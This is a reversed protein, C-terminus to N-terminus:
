ASRHEHIAMPTPPQVLTLRGRQRQLLWADFRAAPMAKALVFGQVGDCGLAALQDWTEQDEVGEAIVAHGMHRALDITSRVIAADDQDRSMQMVFSRDIKVVQIPLRKLRGLSSYGTGFDDIALQVGLGSLAEIIRRSRDQDAMVSSETVELTLWRPDVDAAELLSNIRGVVDNDFLSRGSINVAMKLLLGRDHWSRLQGIATELTWWTLPIILGSQEAAPIFEDPSVEGHVPHHWRLLAECGVIEGTALSAQPQYWVQLDERSMAQRLDTTLLLRRTSHHDIGPDYIELGGGRAKAEYMAVDARRLLLSSDEGHQPALSAGLSARLALELDGVTLPLTLAELIELGVQGLDAADLPETIVFAFEDGGLRAVLGRDGVTEKLRKAVEVLIDDGAHHGLTDNVDKFGDLDLLMVGVLSGVGRQELRNRLSQHFLVRNALGTLGDHLAEHERAAAQQRVEALLHASRIATGANAAVTRVLRRDDEGFGATVTLRGILLLAPDYPGVDITTLIAERLGRSALVVGASSGRDTRAGLSALDSGDLVDILDGVAAVDAETPADEGRLVYGHWGLDVPLLLEAYDVGLVQQSAHLLTPVVEDGGIQTARLTFNYLGDLSAYRRGLRAFARLAAIAAAVLVVLLVTAWRSAWVLLVAVLGLGASLPVIIVSQTPVAQLMSRPLSRGTVTLVAIVGSLSAATAAVVALTCAM